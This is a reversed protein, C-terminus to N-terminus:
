SERRILSEVKQCVNEIVDLVTIVIAISRWFFAYFICSSGLRLNFKLLKENSTTNICRSNDFCNSKYCSACHLFTCFNWIHHAYEELALQKNTRLTEIRSVGFVVLSDYCFVHHQLQFQLLLEDKVFTM